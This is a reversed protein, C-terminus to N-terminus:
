RLGKPCHKTFFFGSAMLLVAACLLTPTIGIITAAAGALMAGTALGLEFTLFYFSLVRGRVSDPLLHQLSVNLNINSAVVSIGCLASAALTWWFDPSLAMGILGCALLSPFLTLLFLPSFKQRLTPTIIAALIAALGLASLMLGYTGSELGLRDRGILPLFAWLGASFFNLTFVRLVIWLMPHSSFLACAGQVLSGKLEGFTPRKRPPPHRLRRVAWLLSTTSLANLIVVGPAGILGVLVGGLAPGVTRASNFSTSNLSVGSGILRAPLVDRVTAQWAPIRASNAAGIGALLALLLWPTLFGSLAVAALALTFVISWLAALFLVRRRGFLDACVGAPVTILVSPLSFAVPALAVLWPERTLGTIMWAVAVTQMMSGLNNVLSSLWLARYASVRLPELLLPLKRGPRPPAFDPPDPDQGIPEV